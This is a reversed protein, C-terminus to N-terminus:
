IQKSNNEYIRQASMQIIRRNFENKNQSYKRFEKLEMFGIIAGIILNRLVIDKQILKIIQVRLLEEQSELSIRKAEIQQFFIVLLLDNQM